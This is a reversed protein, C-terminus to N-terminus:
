RKAELATALRDELMDLLASVSNAQHCLDYDILGGATPNTEILMARGDHRGIDLGAYDLGTRAFVEEALAIEDPQPPTPDMRGGASLNSKWDGQAPIRAFHAIIRPSGDPERILLIRQDGESFGACFPQAVLDGTMSLGLVHPLCSLEAESSILTVGEGKGNTPPKIVIRGWDALCAQAEEATSIVRTPPVVEPFDLPLTRKDINHILAHANNVTVANCSAAFEGYSRVLDLNRISFLM